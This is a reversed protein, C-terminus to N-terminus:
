STYLLDHSVVLSRSHGQQNVEQIHLQMMGNYPCSLEAPCSM